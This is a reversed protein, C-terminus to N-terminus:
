RVTVDRTWVDVDQSDAGRPRLDPWAAHAVGDPGVAVGQYSGFGYTDIGNQPHSNGVSPASALASPAAWTRGGDSSSTLTPLYVGGPQVSLYSLAVRGAAAALAPLTAEDGSPAALLRTSWTRGGDASTATMVGRDTQAQNRRLVIPGRRKEPVAIKLSNAM